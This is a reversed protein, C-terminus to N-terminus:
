QRTLIEYGDPGQRQIELGSGYRIRSVVQNTKEIFTLTFASCVRAHESSTFGSALAIPVGGASLRKQAVRLLVKLVAVTAIDHETYVSVILISVQFCRCQVM